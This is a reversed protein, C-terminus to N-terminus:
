AKKPPDKPKVGIEAADELPVEVEDAFDDLLFDRRAQLM